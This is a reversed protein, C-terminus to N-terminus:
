TGPVGTGARTVTRGSRDKLKSSRVGGVAERRRAAAPTFGVFFLSRPAPLTAPGFDVAPISAFPLCDFWVPGPEAPLLEIPVTPCTLKFCTHSIACILAVSVLSAPMGNSPTTFLTIACAALIPTTTTGHLILLSSQICLTSNKPM